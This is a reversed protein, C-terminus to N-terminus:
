IANALAFRDTTPANECTFMWSPVFFPACTTCWWGGVVCVCVASVFLRAGDVAGGGGGGGGTFM